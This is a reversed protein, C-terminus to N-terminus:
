SASQGEPRTSELVFDQTFESMKWTRKVSVWEKENWGVQEENERSGPDWCFSSWM